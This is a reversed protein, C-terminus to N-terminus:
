KDIDIMDPHAPNLLSFISSTEKKMDEAEIIHSNYGRNYYDSCDMSNPALRVFIWFDKIKRTREMVM